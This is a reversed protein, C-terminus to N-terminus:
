KKYKGPSIGIRQSFTSTFHQLSSFGCAFAIDSMSMQDNNEILDIAKQIKLNIIFSNPPYGTLNKVEYTFKTKGMGFIYALDDIIWKKNLDNLVIQTLRETFNDEENIKQKRFSLYRHLDIFLNEIINGVM